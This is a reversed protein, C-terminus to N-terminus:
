WTKDRPMFQKRAEEIVKVDQDDFIPMIKDLEALHGTWDFKKEALPAIQAVPQNNKTVITVQGSYQAENILDFFTQRAQTSTVQKTSMIYMIYMDDTKDLKTKQM